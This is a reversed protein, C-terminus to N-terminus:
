VYAREFLWTKLGRKFQERSLIKMLIWASSPIILIILILIIIVPNFRPLPLPLFWVLPVDSFSM